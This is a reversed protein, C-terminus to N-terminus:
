KQIYCALHSVFSLPLGLFAIIYVPNFPEGADVKPFQPDFYNFQLYGWLGIVLSVMTVFALENSSVRKWPGLINSTLKKNEDWIPMGPEFAKMDKREDVYMPGKLYEMTYAKFVDEFLKKDQASEVYKAPAEKEARRATRRSAGVALALGVHASLVLAMSAQTFAGGLRSDPQSATAVTAQGYVPAGAGTRQLCQPAVFALGGTAALAAAGLTALRRAM